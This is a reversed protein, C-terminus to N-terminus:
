DLVEVIMESDDLTAIRGLREVGDAGVVTVADNLGVNVSRRLFLLPGEVRDAADRVTLEARM